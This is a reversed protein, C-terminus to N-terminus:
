LILCFVKFHQWAVLGAPSAVMLSINKNVLFIFDKCSEGEWKCDTSKCDDNKKFNSIQQTEVEDGTGTTTKQTFKSEDVECPDDTQTAGEWECKGANECTTKNSKHLDCEQKQASPKTSGTATHDTSTKPEIITQHLNARLEQADSKIENLKETIAQQQKIASTAAALDDALERLQRLWPITDLKETATHTFDTYEVCVGKANSGDCNTAEFAGLYASTDQLTFSAKIATVMQLITQAHLPAATPEPCTKILNAFVTPGNNGNADWETSVSPFDTCPKAVQTATNGKTCLCLMVAAISTAKNAALTGRCTADRSSAPGEKFVKSNEITGDSNNADGYIAKKLRRLADNATKLKKSNELLNWSDTLRKAKRTAQSIEQRARALKHKPLDNLHWKAAEEAVKTEPNLDKAAKLWDDWLTKFDTDNKHTDPLTDQWQLTNGQKKFQQRWTADALSLNLKIM